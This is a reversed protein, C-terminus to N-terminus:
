IAFEMIHEFCEILLLWRWIFLFLHVNFQLIVLELFMESPNFDIWDCIQIWNLGAFTIVYFFLSFQLSIYQNIGSIGSVFLM